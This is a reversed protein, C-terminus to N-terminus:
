SNAVTPRKTATYSPKSCHFFNTWKSHKLSLASLWLFSRKMENTLSDSLQRRRKREQHVTRAELHCWLSERWGLKGVSGVSPSEWHIKQRYQRECCNRSQWNAPKISLPHFKIMRGTLHDDTRYTKKLLKASDEDASGTRILRPSCNRSLRVLFYLHSKVVSGSSSAGM